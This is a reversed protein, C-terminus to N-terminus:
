ALASCLEGEIPSYICIVGFDYPSVISNSRSRSSEFPASGSECTLRRVGKLYVDYTVDSRCSKISYSYTYTNYSATESKTGSITIENIPPLNQCISIPTAPQKDENDAIDETPEPGDSETDATEGCSTCSDCSGCDDCAGGSIALIALAGIVMWGWPSLYLLTGASSGVLTALIGFESFALGALGGSAAVAAGAGAVVGAANANRDGGYGISILKTLFPTLLSLLFFRIPGVRKYFKRKKIIKKPKFRKEAFLRTQFMSPKNKIDKLNM